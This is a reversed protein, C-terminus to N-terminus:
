ISYGVSSDLKMHHMKFSTNLAPYVFLASWHNNGLIDQLKQWLLLTGMTAENESDFQQTLDNIESGSSFSCVKKLGDRVKESKLFNLGCARDRLYLFFFVLLRHAEDLQMESAKWFMDHLVEKGGENQSMLYYSYVISQYALTFVEAVKASEYNKIAVTRPAIVRDLKEFFEQTKQDMNNDSKTNDM